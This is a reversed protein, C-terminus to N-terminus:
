REAADAECFTRVTSTARAVDDIWPAHGAGAMMELSANPLQATFAEAEARGGFPDDEGWLFAIPTHLRALEDATFLISRNVGKIPAMLKPNARLENRMTDTDRLLAAFWDIADDSMAGSDVAAKLGINRLLPRVMRRPPRLGTLVQMPRTAALRMSLALARLPAGIPFGFEVIRRIRQPHELAARLAFYGGYSTSVVNAEDLDLADLVDPILAAGYAKVADLDAPPRALPESLGCGPRDLLLCRFDPLSCALEAWSSAGNSGGHVFLIPPGSGAELLRVTTGTHRLGVERVVPDFGITTWYRQEASRFADVRM